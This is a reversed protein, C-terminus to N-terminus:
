EQLLVAFDGIRRIRLWQLYAILGPRFNLKIQDIKAVFGIALNQM